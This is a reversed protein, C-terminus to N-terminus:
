EGRLYQKMEVVCDMLKSHTTKDKVAKDIESVLVSLANTVDVMDDDAENYENLYKINKM